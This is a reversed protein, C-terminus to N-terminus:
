TIGSDRPPSVSNSLRQKQQRRQLSNLPGFVSAVSGRVPSVAAKNWGRRSFHLSWKVQSSVPDSTIPKVSVPRAVTVPNFMFSATTTTARRRQTATPQCGGSSHYASETKRICHFFSTIVSKPSCACTPNLPTAHRTESAPQKCRTGELQTQFFFNAFGM